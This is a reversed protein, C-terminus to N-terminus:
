KCKETLKQANKNLFNYNEQIKEWTDEFMLIETESLWKKIRYIDTQCIKRLQFIMKFDTKM